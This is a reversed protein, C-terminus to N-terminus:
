SVKTQYHMAKFVKFSTELLPSMDEAKTALMLYKGHYKAVIYWSDGQKFVMQCLKGSGLNLSNIDQKQFNALLESHNAQPWKFLSEELVDGNNDVCIAANISEPLNTLLIQEMEELTSSTADGELDQLYVDFLSDVEKKVKRVFIDEQHKQTMQDKWRREFSSDKELEKFENGFTVCTILNLALFALLNVNVSGTWTNINSYVFTILKFKSDLPVFSALTFVTAIFFLYFTGRRIVEGVSVDPFYFLAALYVIAVESLLISLLPLTKNIQAVFPLLVVAVLTIVLVNTLFKLNFRINSM